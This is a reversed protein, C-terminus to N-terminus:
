IINRTKHTNLTKVIESLQKYYKKDLDTEIKALEKLIHQRLCDWYPNHRLTLILSHNCLNRFSKDKM